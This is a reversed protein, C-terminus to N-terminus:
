RRLRIRSFPTISRAGLGAGLGAGYASQVASVLPTEAPDFTLLGYDLRQNMRM